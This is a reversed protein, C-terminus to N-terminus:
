KPLIFGVRCEASDYHSITRIVSLGVKEQSCCGGPLRSFYQFPDFPQRSLSKLGPSSCQGIKMAQFHWM